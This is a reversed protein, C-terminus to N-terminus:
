REGGTSCTWGTRFRPGESEPPHAPRQMHVSVPIPIDVGMFVAEGPVLGPILRLASADLEAAAQEVRQRDRGDALRHVILMGVQSLVGPPLDGPRQTALCIVLGYKRGEKAILDFADLRTSVEEGVTVNFFQHAEDLVIVLPNDLFKGARALTMLKHGIVNVIIERLGHSFTLNRLSVRFIGSDSAAIWREMETLLSEHEDSDGIVEMVEPTQVLDDIRSVLSAVYGQSNQDIGGFENANGRGTPWICENLVQSALCEINFPAEHREIKSSHTRVAKDFADRNKNAKEITGNDAMYRHFPNKEDVKGSDDAIKRLRLSRIASRLRPLQSGSAPSIFANRDSERMHWHPVSMCTADPENDTSGIALHRASSGFTHFEGTADILVVRGGQQSIEATLHSLTWSKGSGTAGVVATHRGFLRQVDLRVDIGTGIGMSGMLIEQSGEDTFGASVAARISGLSATYVRDGVRPYRKIGRTSNGSQDITSLLQVVGESPRSDREPTGMDHPLKASTGIEVVRGFIGLHGVDVVLFEGVMGRELHEGFHNETLGTAFPFQVTAYSGSVHTIAGALRDNSFPHHM